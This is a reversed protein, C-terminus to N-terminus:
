RILSSFVLTREVMEDVVLTPKEYELVRKDFQLGNISVRHLSVVRRFSEAVNPLLAGLFSDGFLVATPLSRDHVATVSPYYNTVAPDGAYRPDTVDVARRPFVLDIGANHAGPIAALRQLDGEGYEVATPPNPPLKDRIGQDRLASLIAHAALAAGAYDWHTDGRTYVDRTYSAAILQPRIDLVRVGRARLLPFLRDAPTPLHPTLWAPLYRAYITSKNPALLFVYRMGHSRCWSARRAYLDALSALEVDSPDYAGTLYSREELGFFLWGDRGVIVSNGLVDGFWAYKAGGLAEIWASRLPFTDSVQREFDREWGGTALAGSTPPPAIFPRRLETQGIFQADIRAWGMLALMGPALLLLAFVAIVIQDGPSRPPQDLM